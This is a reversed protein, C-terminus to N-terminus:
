SSDLNCVTIKVGFLWVSSAGWPRPLGTKRRYAQRFWCSAESLGERGRSAHIRKRIHVRIPQDKPSLPPTPSGADWNPFSLLKCGAAQFSSVSTEALRRLACGPKEGFLQPSIVGAVPPVSWQFPQHVHVEHESSFNSRGPFQLTTADPKYTVNTHFPINKLITNIVPINYTHKSISQTFRLSDSLLHQIPSFGFCLKSIFYTKLNGHQLKYGKEEGQFRWDLLGAAWSPNQNTRPLPARGLLLLLSPTVEPAM